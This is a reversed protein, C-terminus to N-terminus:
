STDMRWLDHAQYLRAEQLCFLDYKSNLLHIWANRQVNASLFSTIDLYPSVTEPASTGTVFGAKAGETNWLISEAM